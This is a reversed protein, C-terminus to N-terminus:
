LEKIVTAVFSTAGTQSTFLIFTTSDLVVGGYNNGSFPAAYLIAGNIMWCIGTQKPYYADGSRQFYYLQQEYAGTALFSNGTTIQFIERGGGTNRLAQSNAGWTGYTAYSTESVFTVTTGSVTYKANSRSGFVIFQSSSDAFIDSVYDAVLTADTNVTGRTPASTGSITIVCASMDSGTTAFACFAKTADIKGLHVTLEQALNTITDTSLTGITPASAGNHQIVRFKKTTSGDTSAESHLSLTSSMSIMLDINGGSVVSNTTGFTASATGATISTGSITFPVAISNAARCVILLGTTADLLVSQSFTAATSSGDYLLTASNVTITSGSYSCVVGYVDRRSTGAHYTFLFTSSDIKHINIGQQFPATKQIDPCVGSTTTSIETFNYSSLNIPGFQSSWTGSSASNDLLTLEIINSPPTTILIVGASNKIFFPIVGDNYIVYIPSGETALTTADPLIISKGTATMTVYQVQTSANTLTIDVASSTTTSGSFGASPTAFSLVGSGNTKKLQNIQQLL